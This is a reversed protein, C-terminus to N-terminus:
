FVQKGCQDGVDRAIIEIDLIPEENTNSVLFLKAIYRFYFVILVKSLSHFFLLILVYFSYCGPHVGGHIAKVASYEAWAREFLNAKTFISILYNHTSLEPWVGFDRMKMVLIQAVKHNGHIDCM